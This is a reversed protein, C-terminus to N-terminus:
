VVFDNLETEVCIKIIIIHSRWMLEFFFRGSTYPPPAGRPPPVYLRGNKPRASLIVYMFM